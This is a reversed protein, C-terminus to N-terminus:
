QHACQDCASRWRGLFPITETLLVSYRSFNSNSGAFLDQMRRAAYETFEPLFFIKGGLLFVVLALTILGGMIIQPSLTVRRYSRHYSITSKQEPVDGNGDPAANETTM